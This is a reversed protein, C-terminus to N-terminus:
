DLLLPLWQKFTPHYTLGTNLMDVSNPLLSAPGTYQADGLGTHNPPFTCGQQQLYPASGRLTTLDGSNGNWNVEIWILAGLLTTFISLVLGFGKNDNWHMNRTEADTSDVNSSKTTDVLFFCNLRRLEPHLQAILARQTPWTHMAMTSILTYYVQLAHPLFYGLSSKALNFKDEMAELTHYKKLYEFVIYLEPWLQGFSTM